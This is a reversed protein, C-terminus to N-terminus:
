LGIPYTNDSHSDHDPDNLGDPDHRDDHPNSNDETGIPEPPATYRRADEYTQTIM